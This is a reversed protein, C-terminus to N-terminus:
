GHRWGRGAVHGLNRRLVMADSGDRYYRRRRDIEVFGAAAYFALAAVNGASVELLVGGAGQERAHDLVEELLRGAIGRRQHHPHVAIRQLDAVDDSCRTVAYGVVRGDTVAVTGHRGPAVLEDRMAAESWADSAFLATELAALAAVDDPGAPRLIV